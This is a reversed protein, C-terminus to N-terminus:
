TSLLFASVHGIYHVHACSAQMYAALKYKGHTSAPSSLKYSLRLSARCQALNNHHSSVM